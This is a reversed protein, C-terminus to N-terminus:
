FATPLAEKPVRCSVTQVAVGGVLILDGVIIERQTWYLNGLTVMLFIEGPPKLVSRGGLIGARSQVSWTLSFQKPCIM